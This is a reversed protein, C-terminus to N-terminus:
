SEIEVVVELDAVIATRLVEARFRRVGSLQSGESHELVDIRIRGRKELVSLAAWMDNNEFFTRKNEGSSEWSSTNEIGGELGELRIASNITTAGIAKNM